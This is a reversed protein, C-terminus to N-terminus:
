TENKERELFREFWLILDTEFANEDDKDAIYIYPIQYEKCVTEEVLCGKAMFYKENFIVLDADEMLQISRGLHMLRGADADLGEHKYNDIIEIRYLDTEKFGRYRLIGYIYNDLRDIRDNIEEETKDHMPQSYFIKIAKTPKNMFEEWEDYKDMKPKVPVRKGNEYKFFGDLGPDKIADSPRIM